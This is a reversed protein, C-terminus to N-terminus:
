TELPEWVRGGCKTKIELDGLYDVKATPFVSRHEKM